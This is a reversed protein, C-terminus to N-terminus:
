IVFNEIVFNYEGLHVIKTEIMEEYLL